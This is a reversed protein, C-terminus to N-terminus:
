KKSLSSRKETESSKKKTALWHRIGENILCMILPYNINVVQNTSKNRIFHRSVDITIDYQDNDLNSRVDDIIVFPGSLDAMNSLMRRVNTVPKNKVMTHDTIMETFMDAEQAFHTSFGKEIHSPSAHSYLVLTARGGNFHYLDHIFKKADPFPQAHRDVLTMDYDVVFVTNFSYDYLPDNSKKVIGNKNVKKKLCKKRGGVTEPLIDKRDEDESSGSDATKIEDSSSCSSDNPTSLKKKKLSREVPKISNLTSKKKFRKVKAVRNNTKNSVSEDESDSALDEYGQGKIIANRKM